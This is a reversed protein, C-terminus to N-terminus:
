DKRLAEVPDLDAAKKAPYLGALSSLIIALVWAMVISEAKFIPSISESGVLQNMIFGLIFGLVVGISAGTVGIILAENLFLALIQRKTYGLAKLTGIEKTRELASTYLTTIIGVAAVGLSVLAINDVFDKISNSINSVVDAIQKPSFVTVDYSSEIEREVVRNLSGDPEKTIVYLGDYKDRDFLAEAAGLSVFAMDDLPLFGQMGIENAIGRVSFSKKVTESIKQYTIRITEGVKTFENDGPEVLDMGLFVGYNDTNQVIEGEYISFSPFALTLKEMEVGLIISDKEETSSSVKISNQIFPIVEKVGEFNKMEEVLIDTIDQGGPNIIILNPSLSSFQEEFYAVTGSSMGNVAIILAVGIIVM